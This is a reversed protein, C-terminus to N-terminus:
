RKSKVGMAKKVALKFEPLVEGDADLFEEDEMDTSANKAALKGKPTKKWDPAVEKLLSSFIEKHAEISRNYNQPKKKSAAKKVTKKSSSKPTEDDDGDDADNTDEDDETVEDNDDVDEEEEVVKSKKAPSSKKAAKKQAPAPEGTHASSVLEKLGTLAVIAEEDEELIATLAYDESEYDAVNFKRAYKVETVRM